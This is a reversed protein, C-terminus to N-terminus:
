HLRAGTSGVVATDFYDIAIYRHGCTLYGQEWDPKAVAIDIDNLLSSDNRYVIM